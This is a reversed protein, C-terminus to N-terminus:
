ERRNVAVQLARRFSARGGSAASQLAHYVHGPAMEDGGGPEGRPTEAVLHFHKRMLCYAHVEWGTRACTLGLLHLFDRRDAENWFIDERRDGRSLLHYM